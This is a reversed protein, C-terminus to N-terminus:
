GLGAIGGDAALVQGQIANGGDSALFAFFPAIEEPEFVKRLLVRDLTKEKLKPDSLIKSTMSTSVVGLSVANVFINYRSLEKAGSKTLGIIGAKAASYNPQGISGQIGAVSIVNIIKGQERERMHKAAERMCLFTGTLHVGIVSNWQELSMKHFMAPASNGANNVLIDLKGWQGLTYEFMETVQDENSVDAEYPIGRGGVQEIERVVTQASEMSVDNVLVEAGEKAFELAVGRGIGGGAGTVIASKGELIM